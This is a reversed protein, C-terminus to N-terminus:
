YIMYTHPCHADPVKPFAKPADKAHDAYAQLIAPWEQAPLFCLENIIFGDEESTWLSSPLAPAAM